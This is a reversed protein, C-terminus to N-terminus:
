LIFIVVFVNSLYHIWFVNRFGTPIFRWLYIGAVFQPTPLGDFKTLGTLSHVWAFILASAIGIVWYYKNQRLLSLKYPLWRFIFEEALVFLIGISLMGFVAIDPNLIWSNAEASGSSGYLFGLNIFEFFYVPLLQIGFLILAVIIRNKWTLPASVSYKPISDNM